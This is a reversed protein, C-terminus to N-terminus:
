RTGQGSPAPTGAGQGTTTPPAAAPPPTMQGVAGPRSTDATRTDDRGFGFLFALVLVALVAGAIWGWTAGSGPEDRLRDSDRLKAM